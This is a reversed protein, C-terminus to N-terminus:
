MATVTGSSTRYGPCAKRYMVPPSLVSPHAQAPSVRTHTVFVHTCTQLTGDTVSRSTARVSMIATPVFLYPPRAKSTAFQTDTVYTSKSIMETYACGQELDGVLRHCKLYAAFIHAHRSWITAPWKTRGNATGCHVGWGALDM